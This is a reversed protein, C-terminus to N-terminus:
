DSKGAALRNRHTAKAKPTNLNSSRVTGYVYTCVRTHLLALWFIKFPHSFLAQPNEM